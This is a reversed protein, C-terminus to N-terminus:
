QQGNTARQQGNFTGVIREKLKDYPFVLVAFLVLAVFYFAPYAVWPAIKKLREKV